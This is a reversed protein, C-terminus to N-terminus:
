VSIDKVNRERHVIMIGMANAVILFMLPHTALSVVPVAEGSLTVIKVGSIQQSHKDSADPKIAIVILAVPSKAPTLASNKVIPMLILNRAIMTAAVGRVFKGFLTANPSITVKVIMM